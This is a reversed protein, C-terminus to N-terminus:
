SSLGCVWNDAKPVPGIRLMLPGRVATLTVGLRVFYRDAFPDGFNVGTAWRDGRLLSIM